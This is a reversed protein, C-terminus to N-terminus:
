LGCLCFGRENMVQTVSVPAGLDLSRQGAELVAIVEHMERNAVPQEGTALMTLFRELLFVYLNELNPAVTRWGNKGHLAIQYGARMYAAEGVMLMLDTGSELRVRVLNRGPQGVNHVTVAGAGLVEYAMELAHIGYYILENGCITTAIPVPSLDAVESKLQQIDPVYRLSSASMVKAGHKAAFELVAAAERATMALPKDIFVPLGKKLAPLAWRYQHRSGDDVVLVADVGEACEEPTDVVEPIDCIRALQEAVERHPDQVKVIKADPIRRASRVFTGTFEKALAEDYGNFATAFATGHHSGPTRATEGYTAASVLSLRLM